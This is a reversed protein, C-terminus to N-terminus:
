LLSMDLIENLVKFNFSVANFEAAFCNTSM